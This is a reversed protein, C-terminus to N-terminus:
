KFYLPPLLGLPSFRSKKILFLKDVDIANESPKSVVYRVKKVSSQTHKNM